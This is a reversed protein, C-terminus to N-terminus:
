SEDGVETLAEEIGERDSRFHVSYEAPTWKAAPPTFKMVPHRSGETGCEGERWCDEDEHVTGPPYYAASYIWGTFTVIPGFVDDLTLGYGELIVSYASDHEEDVGTPHKASITFRGSKDATEISGGVITLLPKQAGRKATITVVSLAQDFYRSRAVIVPATM